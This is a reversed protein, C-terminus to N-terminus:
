PLAMCNGERVFRNLQSYWLNWLIARQFWNESCLYCRGIKDEFDIIKLQVEESAVDLTDLKHYIHFSFGTEFHKAALKAYNTIPEGPVLFLELSFDMGVM